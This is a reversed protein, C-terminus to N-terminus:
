DISQNSKVIFKADIKTKTTNEYTMGMNKHPQDDHFHDYIYCVKAQPDNEWTYEMIMDSDAKLKEGLTPYNRGTSVSDIKIKKKYFEFASM